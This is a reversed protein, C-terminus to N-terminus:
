VQAFFPMQKCSNFSSWPLSVLPLPTELRSRKFAFIHSSFPPRLWAPQAANAFAWLFALLCEVICSFSRPLCSAIALNLHTDILCFNMDNLSPTSLSLQQLLISAASQKFFVFNLALQVCHRTTHSAQPPPDVVVGISMVFLHSLHGRAQGRIGSTHRQSNTRWLIHKAQLAYRSSLLWLTLQHKREFKFCYHHRM